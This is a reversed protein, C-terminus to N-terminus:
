CIYQAATKGRSTLGYTVDLLSTLPQKHHGYQVTSYLFGDLQLSFFIQCFAFEDQEIASEKHFVEDVTFPHTYSALQHLLKCEKDTLQIWQNPESKM